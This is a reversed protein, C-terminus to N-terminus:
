EASQYERAQLAQAHVAAGIAVAEEPRATRLPPKGFFSAMRDYIAPSRASGGIVLVADLSSRGLSAMELAEDCAALTEEITPEVLSDFTARSIATELHKPGSADATIFPLSITSQVESCLEQKVAEAADHLRHLALHDASLDIGHERTFDDALMRVVARDM